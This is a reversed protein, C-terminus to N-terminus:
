RVGEKICTIVYEIEENTLKPYLPLTINSNSINEAIPYAGSKHGYKKKYYSMLHISRFNVSVGIDLEQLAHLYKDRNKPDVLITYLHWAHKTQSLEQLLKFNNNKEFEKTYRNVISIRKELFDELLDLQNLLLAAQLNSMNCKMGLFTVDYHQYKKQYRDIANKTMGHQRAKLFWDYLKKNNCTIAGGEGCALNKTAYYSFCAVDGLQGPRIGDRNGEICHACDEIIKLNHADAIKRIAKMDCMQGYLHVVIIAKTRQTIAKEILTADINGSCAEVDIFVSKAGVSEIANATAVFSLPTTIVENKPGIDFARLALELAHTCSMVGVAYRSGIYRAFKKEFEAVTSGTTLFLSDLVKLIEQKDQSSINHKYFEVKM